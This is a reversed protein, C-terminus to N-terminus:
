LTKSMLYRGHEAFGHRRYLDIAPNGRNVELHLVRAGSQRAAVEAFQLVETGIGQGRHARDVFVEDIWAGKGGYELSYDFCILLYGAPVDGDCILWALGYHPNEILARIDRLVREEEFPAEWPDDEQLERM